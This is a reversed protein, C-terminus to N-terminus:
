GFLMEDPGWPLLSGACAVCLPTQRLLVAAGATRLASGGGGGRGRCMNALQPTVSPSAEQRLM